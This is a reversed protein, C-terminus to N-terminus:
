PRSPPVSPSSAPFPPPAPEEVAPPPAVPGVRDPAPPMPSAPEPAPPGQRPAPPVAPAPEAPRTASPPLEAPAPEVAPQTAADAAGGGAVADTSAALAQTRADRLWAVFQEAAPVGTLRDVEDGQPTLMIFTPIAQVQYRRALDAFWKHELPVNETHQMEAIVAPEPFIESDMRSREISLWDWFYLLIHRNQAAATRQAKPYDFEWRVGACGSSAALVGALLMLMGLRRLRGPTHAIGASPLPAKRELDRPEPRPRSTPRFSREVPAAAGHPASGPHLQMM